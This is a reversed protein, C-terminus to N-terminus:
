EDGDDEDFLAPEQSREFTEFTPVVTHGRHGRDVARLKRKRKRYAKESLVDGLSSKALLDRFSRDVM